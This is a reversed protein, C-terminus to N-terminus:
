TSSFRVINNARPKSALFGGAKASLIFRKVNPLERDYRVWDLADWITLSADQSSAKQLSSSCDLRVEGDEIVREELWHHFAIPDFTRACHNGFLFSIPSWREREPM